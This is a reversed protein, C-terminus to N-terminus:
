KTIHDNPDYYNPRWFKLRDFHEEQRCIKKFIRLKKQGFDSMKIVNIPLISCGYDEGDAIKLQRDSLHLKIGAQLKRLGRRRHHIIQV